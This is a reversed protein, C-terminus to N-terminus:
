LGLFLTWPTAGLFLLGFAVALVAHVTVRERLLSAVGLAAAAAGLLGALLSAVLITLHAASRVGANMVEEQSPGLRPAVVLAGVPVALLWVAATLGVCYAGKQALSSRPRAASVGKM